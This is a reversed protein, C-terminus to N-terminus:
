RRITKHLLAIKNLEANICGNLESFYEKLTDLHTKTAADITASISNLSKINLDNARRIEQLWAILYDVAAQTQNERKITNFIGLMSFYSDMQSMVLVCSDWMNNILYVDKSAPLLAKIAKSELFIRKRMDLFTPAAVAYATVILCLALVLIIAALKRMNGEERPMHAM